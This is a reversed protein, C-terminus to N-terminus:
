LNIDTRLFSLPNPKKKGREQGVEVKPTNKEKGRELTYCRTGVFVWRAM